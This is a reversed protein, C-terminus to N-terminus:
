AEPSSLSLSFSLSISPPLCFPSLSLSLHLSLPIHKSRLYEHVYGAQHILMHFFRKARRKGRRAKRGRKREAREGIAEYKECPRLDSPGGGERINPQRSGIRWGGTYGGLLFAHFVPFSRLIPSNRFIGRAKILRSYSTSIHIYQDIM